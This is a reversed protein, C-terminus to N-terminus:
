LRFGGDMEMTRGCFFDNTFVFCIAQAIEEPTGMRRMPTRAIWQALLKERMSERPMATDTLGPAVGAVRIGFLALEQSWSVTLANIAGKSAAYSTQGVNGAASVSSVNIIVGCTRKIIMKAAVERTCFFTGTLNSAITDSWNDLPYKKLEGLLSVLLGDKLVAANNVLGDITACREAFDNVVGEVEEFRGVDNPYPVVKDRESATLELLFAELSPKDRDVVGIAAAGERLLLRVTARGIGGAGGTVLIHKGLLDM